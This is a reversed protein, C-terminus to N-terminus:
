TIDVITNSDIAKALVNLGNWQDKRNIEPTKNARNIIRNKM